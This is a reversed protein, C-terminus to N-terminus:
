TGFRAAAGTSSPTALCSKALSDPKAESTKRSLPIAPPNSLCTRSGDVRSQAPSGSKEADVLELLKGLATQAHDPGAVKGTKRAAYRLAEAWLAEARAEPLGASRALWPLMKLKM